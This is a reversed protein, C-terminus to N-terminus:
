RRRELGGSGEVLDLDRLYFGSGMMLARNGGGELFRGGIEIRGYSDGDIAM